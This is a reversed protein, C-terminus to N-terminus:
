RTAIAAAAGGMAAAAGRNALRMARPSALLRRARAALAVYGLDVAALVALMTLSLATWGAFTVRGLDVLTPLLALYFVMIKPNGLTVTLGTLFMAIPSGSTTEADAEVGAPAPATWMRWALYLLYAVGCYKIVLFALHFTEAILALGAIALTLWVIEGIWMAVLFPLVNRWGRVLVQAVLAVISPGPSGASLFLAVAFIALATIDM